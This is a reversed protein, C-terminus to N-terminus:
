LDGQGFMRRFFRALPRSRERSSNASRQEERSRHQQVQIVGLPARSEDQLVVQVLLEGEEEDSLTVKTHFGSQETGAVEPFAAVVDPRNVDVPAHCIMTNEHIVEVAAAPSNQGIVWGVLHFAGDDLRTEPKPAEINRRQLQKADIDFSIVNTIEITAM